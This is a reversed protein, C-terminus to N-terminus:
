EYRLAEVPSIRAARWAPLAAGLISLVLAVVVALAFPQWAFVPNLFQGGFPAYVSLKALGMGFLCGFGCALLGVGTSEVIVAAVIKRRAWGVARLVGIERTREHVTMWMTNTVIVSGILIALFSVGRVMGNAIELGQDIRQYQTASSVTSLTPHGRSIRDGVVDANVGPRVKVQFATVKGPKQAIEQLRELSMIIAGDFFVVGTEFTGAVVFRRGALYLDKGVDKGFLRAAARGLLVEDATRPIRGGILHERHIEMDERHLGMAFGFIMKPAPMVHWLAPMVRVVDPDSLLIARTEAEDLTSFIDAAIGAQFVMMDGEGFRIAANMAEHLGRALSGFAVIAAVGVSVGLATLITRLPQRHLNRWCMGVLTLTRATESM